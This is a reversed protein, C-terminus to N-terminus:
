ISRYTVKNYIFHRYKLYFIYLWMSYFAYSDFQIYLYSIICLLIINSKMKISYMILSISLIIFIVMGYESIIRIPMSFLQGSKSNKLEIVESKYEHDYEEFADDYGEELFIYANGMGAGFLMKIPNKIYGKISANIRFYRAALSADSYVGKTLIGNIRDNKVEFNFGVLSVLIVSIIFYIAMFKYGIKIHKNIIVYFMYMVSIVFLDILFRATSQSMLTISSFMVILLIIRRKIKKSNSLYYVPVLVGFLHMAIFSPETFSFAVRQYSRKEVLSFLELLTNINFELSIYKICGYLFSIGYSAILIKIDKEFENKNIIYRNIMAVYFSIGLVITQIVDVMNSIKIPYIFYLFLSYMIIIYISTIIKKEKKILIYLTKKLNLINYIFFLIPSITAWGASPAFFLNDFPITIIAIKYILDM